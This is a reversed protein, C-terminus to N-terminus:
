RSRNHHGKVGALGSLRLNRAAGRLEMDATAVTWELVVNPGTVSAWHMSERTTLSINRGTPDAVARDLDSATPVRCMKRLDLLGSVGDFTQVM